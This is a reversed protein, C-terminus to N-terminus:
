KVIFNIIKNPVFIIKHVEKDELYKSILQKENIMEKIEEEKSDKRIELISRKKGNIQIVINSIDKKLFKNNVVPWSLNNIFNLKELCESVFHPIVPMMVILLKKYNDILNSYNIKNIFLCGHWDLNMSKRYIDTSFSMKKNIALSFSSKIILYLFLFFDIM